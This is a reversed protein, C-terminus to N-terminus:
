QQEHNAKKVKLIQGYVCLQEPAQSPEIYFKYTTHDTAYDEEIAENVAPTEYCEYSKFDTNKLVGFFMTVVYTSERFYPKEYGYYKLGQELTDKLSKEWLPDKSLKGKLKAVYKEDKKAEVLLDCQLGNPQNLIVYLDARGKPTNGDFVEYEQLAWAKDVETNRVIASKVLGVMAVENYTIIEWANKHKREKMISIYADVEQQLKLKLDKEFYNRIKDSTNMITFAM